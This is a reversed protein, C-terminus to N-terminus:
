FIGFQCKGSEMFFYFGPARLAHKLPLQLCTRYTSAPSIEKVQKVDSNIAAIAM